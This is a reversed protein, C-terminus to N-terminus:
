EILGPIPFIEITNESHNVEGIFDHIFPIQFKTAGECVLNHGSGVEVVDTVKGVINGESLLSLGILDSYYFEDDELHQMEDVFLDTNKYGEAEEVRDFEKFKVIWTTKSLRAKEITLAKEDSLYLQKGKQFRESTFDSNTVIKVEGRLGHVNVIKGFYIM